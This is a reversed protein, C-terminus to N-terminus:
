ALTVGAVPEGISSIPISAGLHVSTCDELSVTHSRQQGSVQPSVANLGGALILVVAFAFLAGVFSRNMLAEQFKWIEAELAILISKRISTRVPDALPRWHPPRRPKWQRFDADPRRRRFRCLARETRPFLM